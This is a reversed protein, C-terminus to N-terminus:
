AGPPPELRTATSRRRGVIAAAALAIGLGAWVIGSGLLGVAITPERYVLRIEHHGATVPVAQLFSDARVLPAPRGDVTAEWGREWTTRVVVLSPGNAFADIRVDEPNV